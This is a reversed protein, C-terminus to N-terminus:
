LDEHRRIKLKKLRVSLIIDKIRFYGWVGAMILIAFEVIPTLAIVWTTLISVAFAIVDTISKLPEPVHELKNSIENVAM